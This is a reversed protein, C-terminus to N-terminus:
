KSMCFFFSSDYSLDYLPDFLQAVQLCAVMNAATISVETEARYVATEKVEGALFALGSVGCVSKCLRLSSHKSILDQM